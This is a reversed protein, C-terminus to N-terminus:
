ALVSKLARWLVGLMFVVWAAFVLLMVACWFANYLWSLLRKIPNQKAM